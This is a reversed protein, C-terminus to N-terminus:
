RTSHFVSHLTLYSTECCGAENNLQQSQSSKQIICKDLSYQAVFGGLLVTENLM